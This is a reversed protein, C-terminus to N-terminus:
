RPERSCSFHSTTLGCPGTRSSLSGIGAANQSRSTLPFGGKTVGGHPRQTIGERSYQDAGQLSSYLSTFPLLHVEHGMTGGQYHTEYCGLLPRRASSCRAWLPPSGAPHRRFFSHYTHM